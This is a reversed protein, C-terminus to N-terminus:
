TAARPTRHLVAIEGFALRDPALNHVLPAHALAAAPELRTAHWGPPPAPRGRLVAREGFQGGPHLEGVVFREVEVELEGDAM